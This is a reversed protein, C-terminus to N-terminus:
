DLSTHSAAELLDHRGISSAVVPITFQNYITGLSKDHGRVFFGVPGSKSCMTARNNNPPLGSQKTHFLGM